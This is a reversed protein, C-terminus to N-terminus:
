VHCNSNQKAPVQVAPKHPTEDKNTRKDPDPSPEYSFTRAASSGSNQEAIAANNYDQWTGNEWVVWRDDPMQYFWMGNAFRYGPDTAFRHADRPQGAIMSAQDFLPSAEFAPAAQFSGGADHQSQGVAQSNTGSYVYAGSSGGPGEQGQGVGGGGYSFGNGYHGYQVVNGSDAEHEGQGVGRAMADNGVLFLCVAGAAFVGACKVYWM